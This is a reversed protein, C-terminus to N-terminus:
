IKYLYNLLHKQFSNLMEHFIHMRQRHLVDIILKYFKNIVVKKGKFLGWNEEYSKTPDRQYYKPKIGYSMQLYSFKLCDTNPKPKLNLNTVLEIVESHDKPKYVCDYPRFVPEELVISPIKRYAAEVATTSMFSIVKDSNEMLHYSCCPDDPKILFLNEFRFDFSMLQKLEQTPKGWITMSPHLRLYFRIKPNSNLCDRVIKIIAEFHSKYIKKYNFYDQATMQEFTSSQFIIINHFDNSWNEPKTNRFKFVDLNQKLKNNIIIERPKNNIIIKGQHIGINNDFFFKGIREKMSKKITKDKWLLDAKYNYFKYDHPQTNKCLAYGGNYANEHTFFQTSHKRCAAIVPKELAHRGNFIYVIDPRRKEIYRKTSLYTRLAAKIFKKIEVKYEEYNPEHERNIDAISSYVSLGIKFDEFNCDKLNNMDNFNTSYNQIFNLDKLNSFQLLNYKKVRGKLLKLGYNRRGICKLCVDINKHINIECIPILGDCFLFEVKDGKELHKQAIELQIDYFENFLGINSYICIKKM